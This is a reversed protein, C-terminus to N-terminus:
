ESQRMLEMVEDFTQLLDEGKGDPYASEVKKRFVTKPDLDTLTIAESTQEDLNRNARLRQQRIFLREIFPKKQILKQLQEDLEHIYGETEVQVEVWA